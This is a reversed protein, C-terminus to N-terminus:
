GLLKNLSTRINYIHRPKGSEALVDGLIYRLVAEPIPEDDPIPLHVDAFRGGEKFDDLTPFNREQQQQNSQPNSQQYKIGHQQSSNELIDKAAKVFDNM